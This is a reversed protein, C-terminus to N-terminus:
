SPDQAKRATGQRSPKDGDMPVLTGAPMLTFVNRLAAARGCDGCM